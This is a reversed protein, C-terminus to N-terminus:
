LVGDIAAKRGSKIVSIIAIILSAIACGCAFVSVTNNSDQVQGKSIGYFAWALVLVFATETRSLGMFIGLLLAIGMMICSWYQADIGLASWKIDTLLAATNAITAVSIWALYVVFAQYLWIRMWSTIGSQYTQM